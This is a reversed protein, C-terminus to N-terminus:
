LTILEINKLYEVKTWIAKYEELLKEDDKRFSNLKNSIDKDGGKVKFTNHRKFRKVYGSIKPMILFLPKTAKDFYGILYKYNTNTEVLKSIVINGVKVDLIKIPKETVNFKEKTVKKEGFRLM